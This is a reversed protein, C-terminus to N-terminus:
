NVILLVGSNSELGIKLMGGEALFEAPETDYGEYTTMM